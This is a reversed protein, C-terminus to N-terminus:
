DVFQYLPRLQMYYTGRELHDFQAFWRWGDDGPQFTATTIERGGETLLVVENCALLAVRFKNTGATALRVSIGVMMRTDHIEQEWNIVDCLIILDGLSIEEDPVTSHSGDYTPNVTIKTKGMINNYQALDVVQVM